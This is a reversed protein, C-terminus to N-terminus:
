GSIEIEPRKAMESLHCNAVHESQRGQRATDLIIPVFLRGVPTSADM